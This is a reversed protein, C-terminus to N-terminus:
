ANKRGYDTSVGEYLRDLTFTTASDAVAFSENEGVERLLWANNDQRLYIEVLRKAQDIFVVERVSAISRYGAFKEGRDFAATSKSLVEIITRPNLLVDSEGELQPPGCVVSVDPYVYRDTNPIRVRMDSPLAECDTEALENGLHRVLNRVIRNHALSAGGMAFVQGDWLEHRGQSSREFALYAERDMPSLPEGVTVLM